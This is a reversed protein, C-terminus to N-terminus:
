LFSSTSPSLESWQFHTPTKKRDGLLMWKSPLPSDIWDIPEATPAKVSAQVIAAQLLSKEEPGYAAPDISLFLPTGSRAVLDLWQATLASPVNPSVPVCDADIAFFSRHQPARFALTNVGMRRTRDWDTASTDDGTRQIDVLGAALHGVVNCGMILAENGAAEKITRYLGLLVEATTLSQNAFHWGDATFGALPSQMEFGWRGSLDFTSFDHKILDFGWERLRSIDTAIRALAEPVSPDLVNGGHPDCLPRRLRWTAPVDEGIRLPRIWIGPRAGLSRIKEALGPMDPFRKNGEHWPGGNFFNETHSALPQWGDDIVSFPQIGLGRPCLEMLRATCELILRENNKGYLWYWDNHGVIPPHVRPPIRSALKRCFDRAAAFPTTDPESFYQRVTAAHLERQGLAVGIGGSRVDLALTINRPELRWCALSNGGTEVGYGATEARNTALFYWPMTRWFPSPQWALDGYSREWADGLFLTDAPFEGHWQLIVTRVRRSSELFVRIEPECSQFLTIRVKGHKWDYLQAGSRKLQQLRFDDTIVFIDLERDALNPFAPELSSRRASERLSSVATSYSTQVM